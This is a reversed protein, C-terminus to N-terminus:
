LVGIDTMRGNPRSIAIVRGVSLETQPSGALMVVRESSARVLTGSSSEMTCLQPVVAAYGEARRGEIDKRLEFNDHGVERIDSSLGV